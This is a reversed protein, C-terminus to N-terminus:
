DNNRGLKCKGNISEYECEGCDGCLPASPTNHSTVGTGIEARRNWNKILEKLTTGYANSQVCDPCCITYCLEDESHSYHAEKDAGDGWDVHYGCFPCPKLEDESARM